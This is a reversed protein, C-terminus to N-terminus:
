FIVVDIVKEISSYNNFNITFHKTVDMLDM